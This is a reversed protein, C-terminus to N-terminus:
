VISVKINHKDLIEELVNTKIIGKFDKADKHITLESLSKFDSIYTETLRYQKLFNVNKENLKEIEQKHRATAKNKIYDIFTDNFSQIFNENNYDVIGNFKSLVKTTAEENKCYINYARYTFMIDREILLKKLERNYIISKIGYFKEKNDTIGAKEKALIECDYVFKRDDDSIIEDCEGCRIDIGENTIDQELIRKRVMTISDFELLDLGSKKSLTTLCKELYYKICDDMKDFYEFVIAEDINLHQSTQKQHYKLLPYNENVMEFKRAWGLFPLTIKFNSDKKYEHLVKILILPTLYKSIGKLLPILEDERQIDFIRHIKYKGQTLDEIECYKQAKSLLRKKIGSNLKKNIIYDTKQKETGFMELFEKTNIEGLKIKM